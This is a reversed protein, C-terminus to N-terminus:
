ENGNNFSLKDEFNFLDVWKLQRSDRHNFPEVGDFINDYIDPLSNWEFCDSVNLLGLM